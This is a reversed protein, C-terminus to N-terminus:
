QLDENKLEKMRKYHLFMQIMFAFRKPYQGPDPLATEKYYDLFEAVLKEDIGNNM